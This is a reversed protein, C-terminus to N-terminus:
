GDEKADGCPTKKLLRFDRVSNESKSVSRVMVFPRQTSKIPQPVSVELVVLSGLHDLKDSFDGGLLILEFPSASGKRMSLVLDGRANKNLVGRVLYTGCEFQPVVHWVEAGGGLDPLAFVSILFLIKATRSIKM